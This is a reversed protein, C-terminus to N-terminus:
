CLLMSYVLVAADDADDGGCCESSRNNCFQVGM